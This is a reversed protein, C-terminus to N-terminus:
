RYQGRGLDLCNGCGQIESTKCSYEGAPLPVHPTEKGRAPMKMVAVLTGMDEEHGQGNVDDGTMKMEDCHCRPGIYSLCHRPNLYM